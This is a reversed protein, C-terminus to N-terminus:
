NYKRMPKYRISRDKFVQKISEPYLNARSIFTCDNFYRKSVQLLAKSNTSINLALNQAM